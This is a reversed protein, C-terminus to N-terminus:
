LPCSGRVEGECDLEWGLLADVIVGESEDEMEELGATVTAGGGSLSRGLGM